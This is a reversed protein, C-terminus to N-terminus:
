AKAARIALRDLLKEVMQGEVTKKMLNFMPNKFRLDLEYTVKCHDDDLQTIEFIGDLKSLLNSERLSWVIVTPEPRSIQVALQDSMGNTTLGFQVQFETQNSNVQLISATEFGAWTPYNSFDLLASMVSAASASIEATAQSSSTM